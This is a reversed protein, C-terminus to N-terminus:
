LAKRVVFGYVTYYGGPNAPHPIVLPKAAEPTDDFLAMSFPMVGAVHEYDPKSIFWGYYPHNTIDIEAGHDPEKVLYDCTMVLLGGPKLIRWCAEMWSEWRDPEVHEMVSLNYVIDYGASPLDLKDLDGWVMKLKDRHRAWVDHLSVWGVSHLLGKGLNQTDCYTHHMTIDTAGEKLLLLSFLPDSGVDFVKMGPKFWDLAWPWETIRTHHWFQPWQKKLRAGGSFEFGLERLLHTTLEECRKNNDLAAEYLIM